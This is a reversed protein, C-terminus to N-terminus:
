YVPDDDTKAEIVQQIATPIKSLLDYGTAAEIADVTTRYYGWKQESVTQVNPMDVAIVRTSTTVRSVDNTGIPLVVIVKWFHAPVNIAGDAISSSMVEKSGIGGQGYGGAIIYLENGQTILRRCYSELAEWTLQNLHPAQPSMNTMKFTAANDEASGDRDESPCLHGRDFGTSSYNHTTAVIYGSPLTNDPEFCNCRTADGKWATSLHWSVWNAMGKSNNYSLSYQVKQVLFNNKNAASTTANSPNGMAMNDDRTADTSGGQQSTAGSEATHEERAGDISFDDINLRGGGLKRVQFRINDTANITFTAKSLTASSTTVNSGSQTWTSGSNSSYWLGWTCAPDTGYLGHAITVTKTGNAKDFLMTLTGTGKIRVSRDGIKADSASGAILADTLQWTGTSLNAEGVAYAGKGGTEFGEFFHENINKRPTHGQRASQAATNTQSNSSTCGSFSLLAVLLLCAKKMLRIHINESVTWFYLGNTTATGYKNNRQM